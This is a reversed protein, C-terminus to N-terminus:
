MGESQQGLGFEEECNVSSVHRGTHGSLLGHPCSPSLLFILEQSESSVSSLSPPGCELNLYM